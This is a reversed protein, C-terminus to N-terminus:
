AFKIFAFILILVFLFVLCDGQQFNGNKPIKLILRFKFFNVFFVGLIAHPEIKIANKSSEFFKCCM